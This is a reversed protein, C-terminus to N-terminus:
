VIERISDENFLQKRVEEIQMDLKQIEYRLTDIKGISQMSLSRKLRAKINSTEKKAQMYDDYATEYRQLVVWINDSMSFSTTLENYLDFKINIASEVKVMVRLVDKEQKVKGLEILKKIYDSHRRLYKKYSEKLADLDEKLNQEKFQAGSLSGDKDVKKLISYLEADLSRRRLRLQKYKEELAIVEQPNKKYVTSKYISKSKQVKGFESSINQARSKTMRQISIGLSESTIDVAQVKPAKKVWIENENKIALMHGDIRNNTIYKGRGEIYILNPPVMNGINTYEIRYIYNNSVYITFLLNGYEDFYNYKDGNKDDQRIRIGLKNIKNISENLATMSKGIHITGVYPIDVILGQQLSLVGFGAAASALSM